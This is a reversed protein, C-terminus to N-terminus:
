LFPAFDMQHWPGLLGVGWSYWWLPLNDISTYTCIFLSSNLHVGLPYIFFDKMPEYIWEKEEEERRESKCVFDVRTYILLLLSLSICLNFLFSSYPPPFFLFFKKYKSEILTRTVDRFRETIEERRRWLLSYRRREERQLSENTREKKKNGHEIKERERRGVHLTAQRSWRGKREQRRKERREEFCM